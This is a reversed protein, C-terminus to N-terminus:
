RRGVAEARELSLLKHQVEDNIDAFPFEMELIILLATVEELIEDVEEALHVIGFVPALFELAIM